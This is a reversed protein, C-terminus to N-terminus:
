SNAVQHVARERIISLALSLGSNTGLKGCLSVAADLTPLSGMSVNNGLKEVDKCCQILNANVFAYCEALLAKPDKMM